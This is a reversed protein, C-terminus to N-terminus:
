NRGQKPNQGRAGKPRKNAEWRNEGNTSGADRDNSSRKKAGHSQQSLAEAEPPRETDWGSQMSQNTTSITHDTNLTARLLKRKADTFRGGRSSPVLSGDLNVKTPIPSPQGHRYFGEDDRRADYAAPDDKMITALALAAAKILEGLDEAAYKLIRKFINFVRERSYENGGDIRAFEEYEFKLRYKSQDPM